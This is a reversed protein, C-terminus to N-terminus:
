ITTLVAVLGIIFVCLVLLLTWALLYKLYQFFEFVEGESCCAKGFAWPTLFYSAAFLWIALGVNQVTQLFLGMGTTAVVVVCIVALVLLIVDRLM